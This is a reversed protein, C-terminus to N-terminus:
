WYHYMCNLVAADRGNVFCVFLCVDYSSDAAVDNDPWRMCLFMCEPNFQRITM